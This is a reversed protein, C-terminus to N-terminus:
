EDIWNGGRQMRDHEAHTIDFRALAARAAAREGETAGQEALTAIHQRRESQPAALGMRAAYLRDFEAAGAAFEEELNRRDSASWKPASM